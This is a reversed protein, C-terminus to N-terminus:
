TGNKRGYHSYYNSGGNREADNVIVGLQKGNLKQVATDLAERSTKRLQVVLLTADCAASLLEFDAIPATVPVSDVIILGFERQALDLFNPWQTGELIAPLSSPLVQGGPSVFLHPLTTARISDAFPVRGRLFDSLGDSHELGVLTSAGKTRLDGDILLIKDKELQALSIALNLSTFSKGERPQPSSILVSKMGSKARAALVRTRIIAFLESAQWQSTDILCPCRPSVRLEVPSHNSNDSVRVEETTAATLLLGNDTDFILAEGSKDRLNSCQL